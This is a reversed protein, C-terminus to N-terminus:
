ERGGQVPVKVNEFRNDAAQLRQAQPTARIGEAAGGPRTYGITNGRFVVDHHAGRLVVNAVPPKGGAGAGNDVIRNGEFANRHAGMAEAEARFLVRASANGTIANGRFLNDTDKHGISVGAGGNGCLENGEFLGHRVRWCVFLGDGGNAV